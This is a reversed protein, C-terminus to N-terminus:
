YDRQNLLLNRGLGLGACKPRSLTRCVTLGNTDNGLEASEDRNLFRQEFMNIARSECKNAM